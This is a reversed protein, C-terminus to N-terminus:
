KELCLFGVGLEKWVKVFPGQMGEEGSLMRWQAGDVELHPKFKAAGAGSWRCAGARLRSSQLRGLGAGGEWM